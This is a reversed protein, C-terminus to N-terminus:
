ARSPAQENCVDGYRCSPRRPKHRYSHRAPMQLRQRGLLQVTCAMSGMASTGVQEDDDWDAPLVAIGDSNLPAHYAKSALKEYPPKEVRPNFPLGGVEISKILFMNIADSLSLGWHAFVETADEKVQDTTRTKIEAKRAAATAM